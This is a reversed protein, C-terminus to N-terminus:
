GVYGAVQKLLTYGLKTDDKIVSLFEEKGLRLAKIDTHARLHLKRPQDLIAAVEGVLRGKEVITVLEDEAGDNPVYLGAEGSVIFYVGDYPDDGQHFVYEGAKATYWQSGFTLIRLRKQDMGVFLESAELARVKRNMNSVAQDDEEDSVNAESRKIRGNELEIHVHFNEPHLFTDELYILTADPMAQRLKISASFRTDHDYSALTRDLILIDPNKIAARAFAIHETDFTSLNSGALGTQMGYILEAVHRKLGVELLIESVISILRNIKPGESSSLKGFLANELVSFGSCFENADLPAFLNTLRTGLLDFNALRLSLIRQKMEDSFDSGIKEASISLPVTMLLALDSETLSAVGINQSKHVLDVTENYTKPDLGLKVFLPHETGDRGFTQHLMGILGFSLSLIEQDLKLEQITKTFDDHSALAQQTIRTRPSAYLLNEAVTLEPNFKEKEFRYFLTDLGASKVAEAIRPRLEVLKSALEPHQASKFSQLLGRSFLDDAIGMGDAMTLWWERINEDTELGSINVDYWNADLSDPSNGARKAEEQAEKQRDSLSSKEPDRHPILRLPMMINEGVTGDFIYPRSNAFGIRTAIVSQPLQNFDEGAITIKGHSPLIERSLLEAMAHRDDESKTAIGIIGGQPFTVNIDELMVTGDSDHVSVNDLVIDGSLNSTPDSQIEFLAEDIMGKPGFRETIVDWRLSMDQVQNYYALLEKWPSSLDKYAALAAVLAGLSVHGIIVLYGGISFFLFPTLQTIFNNVFKMFFKKQFIELRINYLRGLRNTILAMRYRWGGNTRLTSAGAASEGIETALERIELIRRKNLINIRKQLKPIIWAQVPILAIAALGLWVSQLFLFVLITLMQGAQLVPTSIASGMLGGLPEAESTIMSVLEPQSTRRFYPQPFRLIREILQFRFRRLLRESLAGKMTNIRMKM